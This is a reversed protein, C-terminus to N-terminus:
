AAVRLREIGPLVSLLPPYRWDPPRITIDVLIRRGPCVTVQESLGLLLSPNAPRTAGPETAAALLYWRGAPVNRLEWPGPRPFLDSAAPRGRPIPSDFIGVFVPSTVWPTAHITGSITGGPQGPLARSAATHPIPEGQAVRRYATPSLGVCETFRRTFTGLSGYGVQVSIDAVSLTTTSLLQKAEDIRVASLFRGPTVGTVRRFTRLFHFKSIMASRALDDLSLPEEYRARIADVSRRIGDKM